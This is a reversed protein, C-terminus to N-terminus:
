IAEQKADNKSSAILMVEHPQLFGWTHCALRPALGGAKGTCGHDLGRPQHISPAYSSPAYITLRPSELGGILWSKTASRRAKTSTACEQANSRASICSFTRAATM